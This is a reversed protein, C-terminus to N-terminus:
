IRRSQNFIQNPDYQKAIQHLRRGTESPWVRETEAQSIDSSYAGYVGLNELHLAKFQQNLDDSM